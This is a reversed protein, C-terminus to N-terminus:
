RAFYVPRSPGSGRVKMTCFINTSWLAGLCTRQGEIIAWTTATLSSRESAGNQKPGDWDSNILARQQQKKQQLFAQTPPPVSPQTPQTPM